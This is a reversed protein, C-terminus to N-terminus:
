RGGEATRRAAAFRERRLKGARWVFLRRECRCGGDAHLEAVIRRAEKPGIGAVIGLYLGLKEPEGYHAAIEAATVQVESRRLRNMPSWSVKSFDAKDM